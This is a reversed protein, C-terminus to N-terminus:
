KKKRSVVTDAMTLAELVVKNGLTQQLCAAESPQWIFRVYQCERYRGCGHYSASM